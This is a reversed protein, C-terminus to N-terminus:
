IYIFKSYYIIDEYIIVYIIANICSFLTMLILIQNGFRLRELFFSTKLDKNQEYIEQEINEYPNPSPGEDMEREVLKRKLNEEILM